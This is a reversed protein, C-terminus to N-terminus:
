NVSEAYQLAVYKAVVMVTLTVILLPDVTTHLKLVEYIIGLVLVGTGALYAVRAAYARHAEQREDEAKERWMLLAFGIYGAFFLALAVYVAFQAYVDNRRNRNGRFTRLCREGQWVFIRRGSFKNHPWPYDFGRSIRPLSGNYWKVMAAINSEKM